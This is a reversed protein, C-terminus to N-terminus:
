NELYTEVLPMDKNEAYDFINLLKCQSLTLIGNNDKAMFNFCFLKNDLLLQLLKKVLSDVNLITKELNVWNKLAEEFLALTHCQEKDNGYFCNTVRILM